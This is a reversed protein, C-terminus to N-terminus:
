ALKADMRELITARAKTDAEYRRLASLEKETLGDLRAGIEDVTLADYTPMPLEIFKSEITELVTSRNQNAREYKYVKALDTQTLGNLRARIEGVTLQEYGSIPLGKADAPAAVRPMKPAVQAAVAGVRKRIKNPRVRNEGRDVFDQYRKKLGEADIDTVSEKIKSYAGLPLYVGIELARNKVKEMTDM